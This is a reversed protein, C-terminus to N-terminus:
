NRVNYTQKIATGITELEADTLAPYIPFSVTTSFMRETVSFGGKIDFTKHLLSDVGRRLSIGKEAFRKMTDEVDQNTQIVFRYNMGTGYSTKLVQESNGLLKQYAEAQKKRKELFVDYQKLQACGFAAQTETVRNTFVSRKKLETIKDALEDSNTLIGGGEGAMTMCKIAAFSVFSAIGFSGAKKENIELGMAQCIDEIVPIGFDVITKIDCPLGFTYVVIIAKTKDTIRAKIEEPGAVWNENIDALVPIAGANQVAYYVSDCVYSPLIVEDGNKIGLAKLIVYLSETGSNAFFFHKSQLYTRIGSSFQKSFAGDTIVPSALSENVYQKELEGIYPKSHPIM